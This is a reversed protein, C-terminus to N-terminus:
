IHERFLQEVEHKLMSLSCLIMKTADFSSIKLLTLAVFLVCMNFNPWSGKLEFGQCNM